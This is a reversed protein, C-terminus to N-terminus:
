STTFIRTNQPLCHIRSIKKQLKEKQNLIFPLLEHRNESLLSYKKAWYYKKYGLICEPFRHRLAFTTSIRMTSIKLKQVGQLSQHRTLQLPYHHFLSYKNCCDGWRLSTKQSPSNRTRFPLGCMSSSDSWEIPVCLSSTPSGFKVASDALHGAQSALSLDTRYFLSFYKILNASRLCTFRTTKGTFRFLRYWPSM